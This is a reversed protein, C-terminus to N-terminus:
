QCQGNEKVIKAIDGLTEISNVERNKMHFDFTHEIEAILSFFEMSSLEMDMVISTDENWEIDLGDEAISRAIEIIQVLIM